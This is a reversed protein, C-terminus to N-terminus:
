KKFWEGSHFYEIDFDEIVELMNGYNSEKFGRVRRCSQPTCVPFNERGGISLNVYAIFKNGGCGTTIHKVMGIDELNFLIKEGTEKHTARFHKTM